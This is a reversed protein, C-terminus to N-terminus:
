TSPSTSQVVRLVTSSSTRSKAPSARSTNTLLKSQVSEQLSRKSRTRKKASGFRGRSTGSKGGNESTSRCTMAEVLQAYQEETILIGRRHGLSVFPVKHKKFLGRVTRERQVGDIMLRDAVAALTLFEQQPEALEAM